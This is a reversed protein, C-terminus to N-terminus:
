DDTVTETPIFLSATDLTMLAHMNLLRLSANQPHPVMHVLHLLSQTPVFAWDGLKFRRLASPTESDRPIEEYYRVFVCVNHWHEPSTFLGQWELVLAVRAYWTHEEGTPSRGMLAVDSFVSKGRFGHRARVFFKGLPFFPVIRFSLAQGPEAIWDLVGGVSAAPQPPCLLCDSHPWEMVLVVVCRLFSQADSTAETFTALNALTSPLFALRNIGSRRM